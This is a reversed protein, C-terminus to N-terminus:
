GQMIVEKDVAMDMIGNLDPNARSLVQSYRQVWTQQQLNKCTSSQETSSTDTTKMPQASGATQVEQFREKM